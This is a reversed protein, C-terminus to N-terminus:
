GCALLVRERFGEFTPLGCARRKIVQGQQDGRRRLRQHDARRLLRATRLALPPRRRRVGQLGGATRPRPRRPTLETGRHLRARDRAIRGDEDPRPRESPSRAGSKGPLRDRRRPRALRRSLPAKRRARRLSERTTGSSRSSPASTAAALRRPRGSTTAASSQVNAESIARETKVGPSPADLSVALSLGREPAGIGPTTTHKLVSRENPRV